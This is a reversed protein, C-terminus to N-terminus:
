TPLNQPAQGFYTCTGMTIGTQAPCGVSFHFHSDYVWGGLM